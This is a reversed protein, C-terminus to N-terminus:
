NKPILRFKGKFRTNIAFQRSAALKTDLTHNYAVIFKVLFGWTDIM